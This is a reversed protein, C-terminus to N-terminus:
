RQNVNYTLCLFIKDIPDQEVNEKIPYPVVSFFSNHLFKKECGRFHLQRYLIM